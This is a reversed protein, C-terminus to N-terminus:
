VGVSKRPVVRCFCECRLGRGTLVTVYGDSEKFTVSACDFLCSKSYVRRPHRSIGSSKVCIECQNGYEAYGNSEHRLKEEPTWPLRVESTSLHGTRLALLESKLTQVERKMTSFTIAIIECSKRVRISLFDRKGCLQLLICGSWTPRMENSHAANVLKTASCLSRTARTAVLATLEVMQNDCWGRVMFSGSVGLDDGTASRLRVEAPTLVPEGLSKWDALSVVHEEAGSDMIINLLNGSEDSPLDSKDCVSLADLPIGSIDCVSLAWVHQIEREEEPEAPEVEVARANANEGSSRCM